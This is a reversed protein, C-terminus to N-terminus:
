EGLARAHMRDAEAFSAASVRLGAAIERMRATLAAADAGWQGALDELARRSEAVWGPLAAHVEADWAGHATALAAAQDDLVAAAARLADPDVALPQPM